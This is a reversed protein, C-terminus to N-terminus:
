YLYLFVRCFAFFSDESKNKCIYSSIEAEVTLSM